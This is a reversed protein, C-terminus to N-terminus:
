MTKSSMFNTNSMGRLRPNSCSTDGQRYSKTKCTAISHLLYFLTFASSIKCDAADVRRLTKGNLFENRLTPRPLAGDADLHSIRV